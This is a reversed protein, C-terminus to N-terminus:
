RAGMSSQTTVKRYLQLRRPPRPRGVFHTSLRNVRTKPVLHESHLSLQLFVYTLFLHTSTLVTTAYWSPPRRSKHTAPINSFFPVSRARNAAFPECFDERAAPWCIQRTSAAQCSTRWHWYWRAATGVECSPRHEDKASRDGRFNKCIVVHRIEVCAIINTPSRFPGLFSRRYEGVRM